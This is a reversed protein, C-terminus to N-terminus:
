DVAGLGVEAVAVRQDALDRTVEGDVQAEEGVAAAGHQPRDLLLAVVHEGAAGADAATVAGPQGQAGGEFELQGSGM